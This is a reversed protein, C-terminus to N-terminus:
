YENLLMVSTPVFRNLASICLIQSPCNVRYLGLATNIVDQLTTFVLTCSYLFIWKM